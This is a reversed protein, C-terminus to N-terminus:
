LVALRFSIEFERELWPLESALFVSLKGASMCFTAILLEFRM